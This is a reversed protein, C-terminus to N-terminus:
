GERERELHRCGEDVASGERRSWIRRGGFGVETMGWEGWAWDARGGKKGGGDSQMRGGKLEGSAWFEDGIKDACGGREARRVGDRRRARPPITAKASEAARPAFSTALLRPVATPVPAILTEVASAMPATMSNAPATRKPLVTVLVMEDPTTVIPVAVSVAGIDYM